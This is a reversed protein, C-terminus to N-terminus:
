RRPRRCQWRAPHLASAAALAGCAAAGHLPPLASRCSRCSHCQRHRRRQEFTVARAAVFASLCAHRGLRPTQQSAANSSGRWRSPRRLSRDARAQGAAWEGKDGLPHVCARVRVCACARMCVRMCARWVFAHPPPQLVAKLPPTHTHPWSALSASAPPVTPPVTHPRRAGRHHGGGGRM